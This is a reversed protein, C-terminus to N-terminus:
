QRTPRYRAGIPGRMAPMAENAVHSTSGAEDRGSRDSSLLYARDATAAQTPSRRGSGLHPALAQARRLSQPDRRQKWAAEEEQALDQLREIASKEIQRIRERTVEFVRGVEDLTMGKGTGIGYRYRLVDAEREALMGLWYEAETRALGEIVLREPTEDDPVRDSREDLPVLETARFISRIEDVENPSIQTRAAIEEPVPERGLDNRLRHTAARIKNHKELLHVPVRITRAKDAIARSIAQRVWWTAYTSFKFGRYVDFKEAARMVGLMGEQLQDEEDFSSTVASRRLAAGCLRTNAVVFANIAERHGMRSRLGIEWEEKQTLLPADFYGPIAHWATTTVSPAELQAVREAANEVRIARDFTEDLDRPPRLSVLRGRNLVKIAPDDLLDLAVRLESRRWDAWAQDLRRGAVEVLEREHLPAASSHVITALLEVLASTRSSRDDIADWRESSM